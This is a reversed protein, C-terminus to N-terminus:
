SHNVYTCFCRLISNNLCLLQSAWRLASVSSYERFVSLSFSDLSYSSSSFHLIECIHFEELFIVKMVNRFALLFSWLVELCFTPLLLICFHQSFFILLCEFVNVLYHLYFLHVQDVCFLTRVGLHSFSYHQLSVSLSECLIIIVVPLKVVISVILTVVCKYMTCMHSTCWGSSM